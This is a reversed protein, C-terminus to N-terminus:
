VERLIGEMLLLIRKEQNRKYCIELFFFYKCIPYIWLVSLLFVDKKLVTLRFFWSTDMKMGSDEYDTVKSIHELKLFTLCLTQNEKIKDESFYGSRRSINSHKCKKNLHWLTYFFLLIKPLDPYKLVGHSILSISCKTIIMFSTLFNIIIALKLFVVYTTKLIKLKTRVLIRHSILSIFM